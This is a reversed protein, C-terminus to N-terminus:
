APEITVKFRVMPNESGPVSAEVVFQNLSAVPSVSYVDFPRFGGVDWEAAVLQQLDKTLAAALALKDALNM